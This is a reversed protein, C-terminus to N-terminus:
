LVRVGCKFGRSIIIYISGRGSSPDKIDINDNGFSFSEVGMHNTSRKM